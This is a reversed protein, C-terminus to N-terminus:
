RKIAKLREIINVSGILNIIAFLQNGGSMSFDKLAFKVSCKRTFTTTNIKALSLIVSNFISLNHNVTKNIFRIKDENLFMDKPRNLNNEIGWRSNIAEIAVDIKSLSTIFYLPSPDKREENIYKIYMKQDPWQCGIHYDPLLYYFYKRKGVIKTKVAKNNEIRYIIEERLEKQNNKINLLYHGGQQKIVSATQIQSHLADATVIRNKLSILSLTEQAVPIENTKENIISSSIVLGNSADYIYLVQTNKTPNKTNKARGTGRMEKGDISILKYNGKIDFNEEIDNFFQQLISYLTTELKNPDILSLIRRFTDHSPTLNNEVLNLKHLFPYFRNCFFEMDVATEAGLLKSIFIMLILSSLKYCCRGKIRKDTMNKDIIHVFPMISEVTLVDDISVTKKNLTKLQEQVFLLTNKIYM